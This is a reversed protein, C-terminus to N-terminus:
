YDLIRQPQATGERRWRLGAADLFRLVVVGSPDGGPTIARDIAEGAALKIVEAPAGPVPEVKSIGNPHRVEVVEVDFVPATSHNTTRVWWRGDDHHMDAIILRAQGAERDSQEARRWRGDRRAVWLALVVAAFTGAAGAVQGLASVWDPV